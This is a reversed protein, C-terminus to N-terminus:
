PACRASLLSRGQVRCRSTVLTPHLEEADVDLVGANRGPGELGGYLAWVRNSWGYGASGEGIAHGRRRFGEEDVTLSTDAGRHDPGHALTLELKRNVLQAWSTALEPPADYLTHSPGFSAVPSRSPSRKGMPRGPQWARRWWVAAGAGVLAVQADEVLAYSRRPDRIGRRRRLTRAGDGLM